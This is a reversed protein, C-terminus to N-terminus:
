SISQIHERALRVAEDSISRIPAGTALSLARCHDFEAKMSVIEEEEEHAVDATPQIKLMYGVKVDVLGDHLIGERDEREVHVTVTRRHLSARDVFQQRIGLTGSHRFLLMTADGKQREHCLVSLKQASTRGKKMGISTTWADLACGGSLVLEMVYACHEPTVDDVNTELLV